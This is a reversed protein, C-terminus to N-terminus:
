KKKLERPKNPNNIDNNDYRSIIQEHMHATSLSKQKNM